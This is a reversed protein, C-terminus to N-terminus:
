VKLDCMFFSKGAMITFYVNGIQKNGKNKLVIILDRNIVSKHDYNKDKESPQKEFVAM